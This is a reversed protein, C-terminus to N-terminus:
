FSLSLSVAPYFTNTGDDHSVAGYVGGVIAGAAAGILTGAFRRTGDSSGGISAFALGALAGAASGIAAAYVAREQQEGNGSLAMGGGVFLAYSMGWTWLGQSSTSMGGELRGFAVVTGTAAVAGAAGLTLACVTACPDAFQAEAREPTLPGFVALM